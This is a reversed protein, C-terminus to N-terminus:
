PLRDGVIRAAAAKTDAELLARAAQLWRGSDQENSPPAQALLSLRPEDGRVNLLPRALHQTVGNVTLGLDNRRHLDRARTISPGTLPSGIHVTGGPLRLDAYVMMVAADQDIGALLEGIADAVLIDGAEIEVIYEATARHLHNIGVLTEIDAFTQSSISDRSVQVLEPNEGHILVAVKPVQYRHGPQNVRRQPIRNTSMVRTTIRDVERVAAEPHEQHYAVAALEAIFYTGRRYLRYSFEVDEGGWKAYSEDFGGIELAQARYFALNGSAGFWFPAPHGKLGEYREYHTTRWDRTPHVADRIAAPAPLRPLRAVVDSDQRISAASVDDTNVFIRDGIVAVPLEGLHFWKLVSELHDPAPLMDCDLLVIVEGTAAAMGLNRVKAVRFGQDEQRVVSIDLQGEYEQVLTEPHDHSGDDAIVVNFLARPYTQHLLAALTKDLIDRRNYVAIVVTVTRRAWGPQIEAVASELFAYDNALGTTPGLHHDRLTQVAHRKLSDWAGSLKGQAFRVDLLRVEHLGVEHRYIPRLHGGEIIFCRARALACALISLKRLPQAVIITQAGSGLLKSLAQPASRPLDWVFAQSNGGLAAIRASPFQTQLWHLEDQGADQTLVVTREPAQGTLHHSGQLTERSM